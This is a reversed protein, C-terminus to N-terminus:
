WAVSARLTAELGAAWIRLQRSLWEPQPGAHAAALALDLSISAAEVKLAAKTCSPGPYDPRGKCLDSCWALDAAAVRYLLRAM